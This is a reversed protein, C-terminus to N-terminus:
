LDNLFTEPNYLVYDEKNYTGKHIKDVEEWFSINTMLELDDRYDNLNDILRKYENNIQNKIDETLLEFLIDFLDLLLSVLKDLTKIEQEAEKANSIINKTEKELKNNASELVTILIKLIDFEKNIQRQAIATSTEGLTTFLISILINRKKTEM